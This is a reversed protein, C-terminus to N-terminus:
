SIRTPDYGQPILARDGMGQWGYGKELLEESYYLTREVMAFLKWRGRKTGRTLYPVCDSAPIVRVTVGGQEQKLLYRQVAEEHAEKSKDDDREFDKQDKQRRKGRADRDYEPNTLKSGDEGKRSYRGKPDDEDLTYADRREDDEDLADYAAQSLRDYFDPRGEMDVDTPLVVAGHEGDEACKEVSTQYPVWDKRWTEMYNKCESAHDKDRDLFGIATRSYTPEVAGVSAILDRELTRREPLVKLVWEAAEPHRRRWSPRLEVTLTKLRLGRATAIRYNRHRRQEMGKRWLEPLLDHSIPQGEFLM